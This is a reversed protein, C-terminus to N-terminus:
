VPVKPGKPRRALRGLWFGILSLVAFVALQFVGNGMAGSLKDTGTAEAYFQSAFVALTVTPLALWVIALGRWGILGAAALALFALGDGFHAAVGLFLLSIFRFVLIM